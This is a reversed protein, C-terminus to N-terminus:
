LSLDVGAVDPADRRIESITVDPGEFPGSKSYCYKPVALSNQLFQRGRDTIVWENGQKLSLGWWSTKTGDGGGAGTRSGRGMVKKAIQNPTARGGLSQVAELWDIMGGSLNRRRPDTLNWGRKKAIQGFLREIKSRIVVHGCEHRYSGDSQM